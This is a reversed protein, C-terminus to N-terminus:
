ENTQEFKMLLQNQEIINALVIDAARKAEDISPHVSHHGNTSSTFGVEWQQYVCLRIKDKKKKSVVIQFCLQGALFGDFLQKIYPQPKVLKQESWNINVPVIKIRIKTQM